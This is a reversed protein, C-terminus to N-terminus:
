RESPSALWDLWVSLRLGPMGFGAVSVEGPASFTLEQLDWDALNRCFVLRSTGLVCYPWAARGGSDACVLPNHAPSPHWPFSAIECRASTPPNRGRHLCDSWVLWASGPRHAEFPISPNQKKQQDACRAFAPVPRSPRNKDAYALYQSSCLICCLQVFQTPIRIPSSKTSEFNYSGTPDRITENAQM